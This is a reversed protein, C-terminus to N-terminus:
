HLSNVFCYAVIIDICDRISDYIDLEINPIIIYKGKKIDM